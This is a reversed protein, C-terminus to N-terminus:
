FTTSTGAVVAFEKTRFFMLRLHTVFVLVGAVRGADTRDGRAFRCQPKACSAGSRRSLAVVEVENAIKCLGARPFEGSDEGAAGRTDIIRAAGPEPVGAAGPISRRHATASMM